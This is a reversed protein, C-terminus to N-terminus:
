AVAGLAAGALELHGSAALDDEREHGGSRRDNGPDALQGDLDAVRELIVGVPRREARQEDGGVGPQTGRRHDRLDAVAALAVGGVAREGGVSTLGGGGDFRAFGFV